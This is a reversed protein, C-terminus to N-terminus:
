ADPKSKMGKALILALARAIKKDDPAMDLKEGDKGVHEQTIRDGYKKPQLKSAMWKRADVRLQSRRLAEGNETWGINQGDANKKVMWDNRGDDAITLIDDFLADAQLERAQAYQDRFTEDDALWRMVTSKSPMGEADVIDRLSDGNALRECITARVSALEEPSYAM